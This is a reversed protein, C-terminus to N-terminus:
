NKNMDLEELENEDCINEKIKRVKKVVGKKQGSKLTSPGNHFGDSINQTKM